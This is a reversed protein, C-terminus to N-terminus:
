HSLIMQALQEGLRVLDLGKTFQLCTGSPYRTREVWSEPIGARGYMAGLIAGAIAGITDADRGFNSALVMGSRFSAHELKLCAFAAPIAEPVSSIMSARIREHLPMWADIIRGESQEVIDLAARMNAYLWSDKPMVDMAADIVADMDAGAMAASVAVAVAQAGWIGDAFHSVCADRYALESALALDGACFVGIPGVRMAAGDSNSYTSFKGSDPPTIGMSLNRIATIESAGGRPFEDQVSVHKKWASVVAETTLDGHTEILTQAVLLAFETDDTSWTAKSTFDTVFGFNVRNEQYRAADGLSDGIALGCLSGIAREKLEKPNQRLQERTLM